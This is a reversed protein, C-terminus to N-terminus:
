TCVIRAARGASTIPVEASIHRLSSRRVVSGCDDGRCLLVPLGTRHLVVRRVNKVDMGFALTRDRPAWHSRLVRSM